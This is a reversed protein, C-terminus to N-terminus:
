NKRFVRFYRNFVIMISKVNNTIPIKWFIYGWSINFIKRFILVIQFNHIESWSANSTRIPITRFHWPFMIGIMISCYMKMFIVDIIKFPLIIETKIYRFIYWATYIYHPQFAIFIFVINRKKNAWWFIFYSWSIFRIM